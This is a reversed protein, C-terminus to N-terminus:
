DALKGAEDLITRVSEARIIQRFQVATERLAMEQMWTSFFNDNQELQAMDAAAVEPVQVTGMEGSSGVPDMEAFPIHIPLLAIVLQEGENSVRAVPYDIAMQSIADLFIGGYVPEGNVQVVFARTYLARSVASGWGLSEYFDTLPKVDTRSGGDDALAQALASSAATTLTITQHEWDYTEMESLSVVFLPDQIDLAFLATQSPAAAYGLQLESWGQRLIVLQWAQEDLTSDESSPQAFACAPLLGLLLAFPLLSHISRM